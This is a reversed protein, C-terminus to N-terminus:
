KITIYFETVGAKLKFDLLYAYKDNGRFLEVTIYSVEAVRQRDYELTVGEVLVDLGSIRPERLLAFRETLSVGEAIDF